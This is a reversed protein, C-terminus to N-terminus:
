IEQTTLQWRDGGTTVGWRDHGTTISWRDTGTTVAILIERGQGSVTGAVSLVGAGVVHVVGFTTDQGTVTITGSGSIPVVSTPVTVPSVALATAGVMAVTSFTTDLGGVTITCAGIIPVSGTPGGTTVGIVCSGAIPVTSPITQFGSTSLSGAGVIAVTAPHTVLAAVTITCSGVVPVSATTTDQGATSVACSGVIAVTGFITDFGTVGLTGAGALPVSAVETVLPTVGLTGAGVIPITATQSGSPQVGLVCAGTIPVTSFITDFGAVGLVCAGVIPVAAVETGSPTVALVCAGVIPVTGSITLFGAVGLACAGSIAVAAVRTISPTVGLACAGVIPVTGVATDLPTVGLVGAGTIPVTAVATELPTVSLTGGGGMGIAAPIQDVGTVGLAGGGVIAVSPVFAVTRLIAYDIQYDIVTSPGVDDMLSYVAAHDGNPPVPGYITRFFTPTSTLSSAPIVTDAESIFVSGSTFTELGWLGDTNTSTQTSAYGSFEVYEGPTVPITLVQGAFVEVKKTGDDGAQGTYQIRLANAGDVVGSPTLSYTPAGATTHEDTWGTAIGSTLYEFTGYPGIRNVVGNPIGEMIFGGASQNRTTGSLGRDMAPTVTSLVNVAGAIADVMLGANQATTSKYVTNPNATWTATANVGAFSFVIQKGSGIYGSPVIPTAIASVTSSGVANSQHYVVATPDIQTGYNACWYDNVASQSTTLTFTAHGTGNPVVLWATVRGADGPNADCLLTMSSIETPNFTPTTTPQNRSLFLLIADGTSYSPLSIVPSITTTNGTTQSIPQVGGQPVVGLTGAGGMPVTATITDFGAVGVATAGVIAVAAVRTIATTVGVVCAGSIAVTAVETDLPTVGVTGAGAIAVTATVAGLPVVGLTGAGTIPVTATTTDVGVVGLVTGGAIAVTSPITQFGSVAVTSGGGMGVAAVESVAPTVGLTGGGAVAVTAQETQLPTVGLICGGAIAVTGSITDVGTVGVTTAGVIPVTATVPGGTAVQIEVLAIASQVSTSYGYTINGLSVVATTSKLAVWVDGNTADSFQNISTTGTLATMTTSSTWNYAAGYIWSTTAGATLAVQCTGATDHFTKSTVGAQTSNAGLLCRITLQAGNAAAGGSARSATVTISGPASTFYKCWVSAIGFATTAASERVLNTWAGGGGSDSVADVLNTAGADASLIALVLTGAQPSFSATTLGTGWAGTTTKVAPQNGTDESIAM